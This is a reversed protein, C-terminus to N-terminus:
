LCGSLYKKMEERDFTNLQHVEHRWVGTKRRMWRCRSDPFHELVRGDARGSTDNEDYIKWFQLGIEKAHLILRSLFGSVGEEYVGSDYPYYRPIFPRGTFDGNREHRVAPKCRMREAGSSRSVAWFALFIGVMERWGIGMLRWRKGEFTQM